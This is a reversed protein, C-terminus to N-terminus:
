QPDPTPYTRILQPAGQGDAQMYSVLAGAGLVIAFAVGVMIGFTLLSRLQGRVGVRHRGLYSRAGTEIM